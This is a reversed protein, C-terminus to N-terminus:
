IKLDYYFKSGTNLKSEFGIQGGHQIIIKKSIALGLGTSQEGNTPTASTKQFYKFLKNHENEPIGRGNDKITTRITKQDILFVDVFVDSNLYSFKIANTLLNNVVESLHNEDFEFKLNELSTEFNLKINKKNAILQNFIILKKIFSIYDQNVKIIEIIGSEIKSVDLLSSLIHFSNSSLQKVYGLIEKVEDTLDDTYDELLLNTFSDISGIPNKLDHAAVGIIKNKEINLNELKLNVEQLKLLRENLQFLLLGFLVFVVFRVFANWVVILHSSYEDSHYVALFWIISAILSITCILFKSSNKHLGIFFIPVLYLLLPSIKSGTLFDIIGIIILSFVAIIFIFIPKIQTQLFNM